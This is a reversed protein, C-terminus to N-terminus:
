GAPERRVVPSKVPEESGIQWEGFGDVYFNLIRVWGEEVETAARYHTRVTYSVKVPYVQTGEQGSGADQRYSWPRPAAVKLSDVSVTVAGESGASAAKEGKKCRVLQTFLETDPQADAAVATQSIPCELIEAQAVSACLLLLLLWRLDNM